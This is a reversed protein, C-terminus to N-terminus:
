IGGGDSLEPQKRYGLSRAVKLIETCSPFRRKTRAKYTEIARLFELEDNDYESGVCAAGVIGQEQLRYPGDYHSDGNGPKNAYSNPARKKRIKM